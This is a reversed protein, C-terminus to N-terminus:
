LCRCLDENRMTKGTLYESKQIETTTKFNESMWKQFCVNEYTVIKPVTKHGFKITKLKYRQYNCGTIVKSNKTLLQHILELSIIFLLYLMLDLLLAFLLHLPETCQVHFTKNHLYDSCLSRPYYLVFLNLYYCKFAFFFLPLHSSLSSWCCM